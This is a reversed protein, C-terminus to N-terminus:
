DELEYRLTRGEATHTLLGLWEGQLSYWLEIRIRGSSLEYHEARWTTNGRRVDDIGLTAVVVPDLQGTQTNLLLNRRLVSRDWYAYTSVCGELSTHGAGRDLELAGNSMAGRVVRQEGNENTHADISRVCGGSWRERDSHEYRFVPLGLVTVTFRAHTDVEVDPGNAQIRFEHWGIPRGDLLVRFHWDRAGDEHAATAGSYEPAAVAAVPLVLCAIVSLCRSSM